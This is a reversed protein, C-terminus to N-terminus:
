MRLAVFLKVFFLVGFKSISYRVLVLYAGHTFYGLKVSM